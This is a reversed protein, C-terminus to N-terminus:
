YGGALSGRQATMVVHILSALVSILAPFRIVKCQIPGASMERATQQLVTSRRALPATLASGFLKCSRCLM